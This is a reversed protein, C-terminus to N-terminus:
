GRWLDIFHLTFPKHGMIEEFQDRADGSSTIWDDGKKALFGFGLLICGSTDAQTNGAHILIGSRGPVDRLRYTSKHLRPSEEWTVRYDGAPVCSINPANDRWPDELTYCSWRRDGEIVLVGFTGEDDSRHRIITVDPMALPSPPPPPGYM